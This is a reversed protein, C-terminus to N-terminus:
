KEKAYAETLTWFEGGRRQYSLSILKTIQVKFSSDILLATGFTRLILFLDALLYWSGLNGETVMQMLVYTEYMSSETSIPQQIKVGFSSYFLSSCRIGGGGGGGGGGSVRLDFLYFDHDNLLCEHQFNLYGLKIRPSQLITAFYALYVDSRSEAHTTITGPCFYM